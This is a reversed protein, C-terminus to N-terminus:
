YMRPDQASWANGSNALAIHVNMLQQRWTGETFGPRSLTTLAVDALSGLTAIASGGGRKDESKTSSWIYLSTQRM